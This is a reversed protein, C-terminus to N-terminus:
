TPATNVTKWLRSVDMAGKLWVANSLQTPLLSLNLTLPQPLQQHYLLAELDLARQAPGGGGVGWRHLAANHPNTVRLGPGSIILNGEEGSLKHQQPFPFKSWHTPTLPQPQPVPSTPAKASTSPPWSPNPPEPRVCWFWVRHNWDRPRPAPSFWLM